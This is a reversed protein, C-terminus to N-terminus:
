ARQPVTLKMKLVMEILLKHKEMEQRRVKENKSRFIQKTSELYNLAVYKVATTYNRGWSLIRSWPRSRWLNKIEKPLLKLKRLKQSIVGSVVRLFNSLADNSPALLILHAHDTVLARHYLKINFYESYLLLVSDAIQRTRPDLFLAYESMLTIHLPQGKVYDRKLHYNPKM